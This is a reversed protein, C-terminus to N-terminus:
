QYTAAAFGTLDGTVGGGLAVLCDSRSFQRDTLENMLEGYCALSKTSEGAPFVVADAQFGAERLSTLATQGYLPFVNEGSVVVCRGGMGLRQMEEGLTRILGSGVKVEYCGSPTNVPIVINKM